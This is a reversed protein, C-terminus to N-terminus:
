QRIIPMWDGCALFDNVLRFREDKETFPKDGEAVRFPHAYEFIKANM